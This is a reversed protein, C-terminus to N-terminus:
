DFSCFLLENTFVNILISLYVTSANYHASNIKEKQKTHLPSVFDFIFLLMIM